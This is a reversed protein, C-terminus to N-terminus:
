DFLRRRVPRQHITKRCTIREITREGSRRLPFIAGGTESLALKALGGAKVALTEDIGALNGSQAKVVLERYSGPDIWGGIPAGDNRFRFVDGFCQAVAQIYIVSFHLEVQHGAPQIVRQPQFGFLRQRQILPVVDLRGIVAREEGLADFDVNIARRSFQVDQQILQVLIKIRRLWHANTCAAARVITKM